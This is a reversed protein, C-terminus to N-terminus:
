NFDLSIVMVNRGDWKRRQLFRPQLCIFRTTYLLTVEFRVLVSLAGPFVLTEFSEAQSM